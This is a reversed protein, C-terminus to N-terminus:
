LETSLTFRFIKNLQRDAVYLTRDFHAVASPERFFSLGGFSNLEDGFSNFIYISDKQSDAVYINGSRDLTVDEPTEFKGARMLEEGSGPRIKIEYQEGQQSIVYTLVQTKFANEGQLTMIFDINRANFATLSSIRNASLIGTGTPELLPVRGILTDSREGAPSEKPLFILISNDPDVFSGNNPGRRSVYFSNNYFVALGTYEIRRDMETIGAGPKPLLRTVSASAINHNAGTMNVKYVASVSVPVNNVLTDFKACVLLNLRYDQALEVPQKIPLNGLVDGNLNLMVVRDNGKDAVYIFIDKGILIDEPQNFSEWDPTLKIYVTDGTINSGQKDDQFVSLDLKEGCGAFFIVLFLIGLYFRKNM